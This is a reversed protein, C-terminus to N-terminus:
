AKQAIICYWDSTDPDFDGFHAPLLMTEIKRYGLDTLKDLIIRRRIPVYHEVFHEKQVIRNDQEFTYLLNFDVTGDPSYDWFQMLNVRTDGVFVPNYLYYRPRDKLIMDWNRLDLYLYGQSRVLSDMQELAKLVDANSVYALSNGTSAVCDFQEHYVESVNRFDCCKLTIPISRADCKKQCRQLMQPSLDSGSLQVGLKSLPLTMSGTGISVDLLSGIHKGSFVTEYHKQTISDRAESELLDYIDDREYLKAM